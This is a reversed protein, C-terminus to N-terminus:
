QQIHRYKLPSYHFKKKFAKIFAQLSDYGTTYAIESISKESHSIVLNRAERLRHNLWYQRVGMGYEQRFLEKLRRENLQAAKALEKIRKASTISEMLINRAHRLKDLEQNIIVQKPGTLDRQCSIAKIFLLQVLLNLTYADPDPKRLERLISDVTQLMEPSAFLHHPYFTVSKNASVENVFREMLAPFNKYMEMLFAMTFHFDITTAHQGDLFHTINDVDKTRTINFQSEVVKIREYPKLRYEVFDSLLIHLEMVSIGATGYFIREKILNYFSLWISFEDAILHQFLMDGFDGSLSHYEAGPLVLGNYSSPVASGWIM